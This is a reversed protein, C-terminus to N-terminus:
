VDSSEDLDPRRERTRAKAMATQWAAIREHHGSLLIDPVRQGRYVEPRTYQPGELGRNSTSFSDQQAGHKAGLADPLLRTVADVLIMAPIEGGTLIFDGVSVERANLLNTVRDDVGEYHGAVIILHEMTALQEALAQSFPEGQASTMLVVPDVAVHAMSWEVAPVVVDARLLMGHGGGFPYDDVMRHPGLGFSRLPVVRLDVIGHAQARGLISHSFVGDFMEPFLTVVQIVM